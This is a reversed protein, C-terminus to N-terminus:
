LAVVCLMAKVREEAHKRKKKKKGRRAMNSSKKRNPLSSNTEQTKFTGCKNRKNLWIAGRGADRM